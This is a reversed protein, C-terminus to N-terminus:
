IEYNDKIGIDFHLPMRWKALSLFAFVVGSLLLLVGAIEIWQFFLLLVSSALFLPIMKLGIVRFCFSEKLAIGSFTVFIFGLTLWWFQWQYDIAILIASVWTSWQIILRVVKSYVHINAACIIASIFAIIVSSHLSIGTQPMRNLLNLGLLFLSVAFLSLGLRYFCVSLKDLFDLTDQYEPNAM